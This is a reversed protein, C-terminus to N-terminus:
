ATVEVVAWRKWDPRWAVRARLGYDARIDARFYKGELISAHLFIDPYQDGASVFGYGADRDYWKVRVAVWVSTERADDGSVTKLHPPTFTEDAELVGLVFLGRARRVVQCQVPAGPELHTVSAAKLAENHLFADGKETEVFGYGKAVDFWKLTGEITEAEAQVVPNSVLAAHENAATLM